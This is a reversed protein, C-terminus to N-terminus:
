SFGCGESTPLSFSGSYLYLLFSYFVVAFVAHNLQRNVSSFHSRREKFYNDVGPDLTGRPKPGPMGPEQEPGATKDFDDDFLSKFDEDGADSM